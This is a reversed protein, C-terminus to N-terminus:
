IKGRKGGQTISPAYVYNPPHAPSDAFEDLNRRLVVGASYKGPMLNCLRGRGRPDRAVPKSEDCEINIM